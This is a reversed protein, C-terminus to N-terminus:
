TADDFWEYGELAYLLYSRRTEPNVGDPINYFKKFLKKAGALIYNNNCSM